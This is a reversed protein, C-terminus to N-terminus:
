KVESNRAEKKKLLRIAKHFEIQSRYTESTIQAKGFPLTEEYEM